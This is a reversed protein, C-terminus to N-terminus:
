MKSQLDKDVEEEICCLSVGLHQKRSGWWLMDSTLTRKGQVLWM